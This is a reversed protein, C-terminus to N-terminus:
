KIRLNNLFKPWPIAAFVPTLLFPLYISRYRIVAGLVPVMYGVFILWCIAFLISFVLFANFNNKIVNRYRLLAWLGILIYVILELGFPYLFASLRGDWVFPRLLGVSLAHPLATVFSKVTPLLQASEVYTNAKDISEFADRKAVIVELLPNTGFIMEVGFVCIVFLVLGTIVVKYPQIKTKVSFVWGAIFPTLLILVFSRFFFILLLSFLFMGWKVLSFKCGSLKFYIMYFVIGLASLIIGDKHVMSGFFLVSPLLFVAIFLPWKVSQFIHTYVKYLAVFGPIIFFNYFIVNIYYNGGSFVDFVSLIKAILNTKLDNWFSNESSFFGAYGHSYVSQFLNTFYIKPANFLLHYEKLGETHYIWTDASAALPEYIKGALVGVAVKLWFLMIVWRFAIGSRRVFPIQTLM